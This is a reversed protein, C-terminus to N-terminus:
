SDTPRRTLLHFRLSLLIAATTLGFVLGAWLGKPGLAMAIGLTYALALGVAWYSLLNIGMPVVTDKLGRLAGVAGVQVGDSVQFLAATFLLGVAVSHVQPDRTYMGVILDPVALMILASVAMAGGCLAMGVLGSRRAGRMDRAGAAQGVRITTGMAIGLPVMFALASYNLAIQHAAVAVVGLSGMLLSVASFLGVEVVISVAMPVGLRALRGIWVMAPPEMGWLPGLARYQPRTSVYIALLLADLCLVIASSWGAGVAGMAPAGFRGFMLIYNGLANTALAVLQIYMIPRTHGIGESLFRLALYGCTAPMGWAIAQLYGDAVPVIAPDMDFWPMVGGIGYTLPTAVAAVLVALWLSQRFVRAIERRRGAGELQAVTPSVAMMIGVCGLYVPLWLSSGVAVAALDMAGLRGAMVTDTFGMGVQSVQGVVLPGALRGLARAERLAELGRALGRATRESMGDIDNPPDPSDYAGTTPPLYVM